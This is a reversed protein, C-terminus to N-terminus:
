AEKAKFRVSGRLLLDWILRVSLQLEQRVCTQIDLMVCAKTQRDHEVKGAVGNM